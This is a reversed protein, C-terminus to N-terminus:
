ATSFQLMPMKMTNTKMDKCVLLVLLCGAVGGTSVDGTIGCISEDGAVGCTSVGGFWSISVM